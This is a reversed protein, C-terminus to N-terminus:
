PASTLGTHERARRRRARASGAVAGLVGIPMTWLILVILTWWVADGLNAGMGVGSDADLLLGGLQRYWHPAEALWAVVVLLGGLVTAWACATLGTRLSHGIAAATASGAVFMLPPVFLLYSMIGADPGDVGHWGLQSALVFGAAVVLATAVGFRRGRRDGALWRPPAVALWLGAALVVALVVATMPTLTASIVPPHGSPTLPYEAVYWTTFGVCGAVGALTLGTVAPGAGALGVRRRRAVALTALGGLLGVFTLAFVRGAPLAAGAVLAAGATAAVALAGTVGVAVRNGGPPFIAARAGGAAFRWRAARDEVQTLEAAMAAGWERRDGPLTAAAAALLWAPGDMRSLEAGARRWWARWLLRAAVMWPTGFVAIWIAMDLRIRLTLPDDANIMMQVWLYVFPVAAVASVVLGGLRGMRKTRNM